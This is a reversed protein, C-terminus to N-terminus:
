SPMPRLPFSFGRRSPLAPRPCLEHSPSIQQGSPHLLLAPRFQTELLPYTKMSPPSTYSPGLAQGPPDLFTVPDGGCPPGRCPGQVSLLRTNTRIARPVELADIRSTNPQLAAATLDSRRCPGHLGQRPQDRRPATSVLVAGAKARRPLSGNKRSDGGM